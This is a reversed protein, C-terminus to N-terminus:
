IQFLKIINKHLRVRFWCKAYRFCAAFDLKAATAKGVRFQFM